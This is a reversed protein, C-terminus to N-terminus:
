QLMTFIEYGKSNIHYLPIPVAQAISNADESVCFAFGLNLFPFEFHCICVDLVLGCGSEGCKEGGGNQDSGANAWSDL